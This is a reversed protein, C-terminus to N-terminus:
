ADDFSDPPIPAPESALQRRHAEPLTDGPDTLDEFTERWRRNNSMRSFNIQTGTCADFSHILDRFTEMLPRPIDPGLVVRRIISPDIGVNLYPTAWPAMLAVARYEREDEFVKRKLFPYQHPELAGLGRMERWDLYRVEGHIIAPYRNFVEILRERDFVVCAGLRPGAFVQWHHFTEITGTLCLAVAGVSGSRRAYRELCARDNEDVWRSTPVLTIRRHRLMDLVSLIDTYRRFIPRDDPAAPEGSLLETM